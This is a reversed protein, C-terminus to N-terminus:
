ATAGKKGTPPGLECIPGFQLSKVIFSYSVLGVLEFFGADRTASFTPITAHGQDGATVSEDSSFNSTSSRFDDPKVGHGDDVGEPAHRVVVEFNAAPLKTKSDM